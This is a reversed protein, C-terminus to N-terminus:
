KYFVMDYYPSGHMWNTGIAEYKYGLFALKQICAQTKERFSPHLFDHFEITYQSPKTLTADDANMIMDWEAGEIDVKVLDIKDFKDMLQKLTYGKVTHQIGNFYNVTASGGQTSSIDENFIVYDTEKGVIAGLIKESRGEIVNIVDYNRNLPEIMLSKSTPYSNLFHRTFEGTCAGLDLLVPNESFNTFYTHEFFRVKMSKNKLEGSIYTV